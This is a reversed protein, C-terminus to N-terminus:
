VLRLILRLLPSVDIRLGPHSQPSRRAVIPGTSPDQEGAAQRERVVDGDVVVGEQCGALDRAKRLAELGLRVASM